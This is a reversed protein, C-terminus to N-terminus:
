STSPENLNDGPNVVLYDGINPRLGIGDLSVVPMQNVNVNGQMQTPMDKTSLALAIKIKNAETFKHFNDNLYEWSKGILLERQSKEYKTIDAM